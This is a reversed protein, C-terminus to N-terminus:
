GYLAKRWQERTDPCNLNIWKDCYKAIMREVWALLKETNEYTVIDSLTCYDNLDLDDTWCSLNLASQLHNFNVPNDKIQNLATLVHAAM